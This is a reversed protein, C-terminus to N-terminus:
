VHFTKKLSRGRKLRFNVFLLVVVVPMICAAVIVSWQWQLWGTEFLSLIGEIAICLLAAGLFVYAILNIGKNRSQRIVAILASVILNSILLLPIALRISWRLRGTVADLIVLSLSSLLLGGAMKLLTSQNWFAFLSLYCFITLCIAVPYESWIIRRNIIFDVVFTAMAGSLLIISVIEWTFKKQPQSMQVPTLSSPYREGYTFSPSSTGPREDITPEGCLPCARISDELEVGCNRCIM